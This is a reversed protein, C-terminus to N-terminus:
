EYQVTSMSDMSCIRAFGSSLSQSSILVKRSGHVTSISLFVNNESDLRNLTSYSFLILLTHASYSYLILLYSYLMLVTHTCYSFLMLCRSEVIDGGSRV